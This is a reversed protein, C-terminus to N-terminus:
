PHPVYLIGNVHPIHVCNSLSLLGNVYCRFSAQLPLTKDDNTKQNNKSDDSVALLAMLRRSTLLDTTGFTRRIYTFLGCFRCVSTKLIRDEDISSDRKTRNVGLDYRTDRLANSVRRRRLAEIVAM